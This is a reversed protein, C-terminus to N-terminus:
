EDSETSDPSDTAIEEETETSNEETSCGCATKDESGCTNCKNEEM